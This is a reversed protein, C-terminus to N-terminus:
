RPSFFFYLACLKFYTGQIKFYTPGIKPWTGFYHLIQRQKKGAIGVHFIRKFLARILWRGCCSKPFHHLQTESRFVILEFINSISTFFLCFGQILM